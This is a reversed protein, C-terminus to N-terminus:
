STWRVFLDASQRAWVVPGTLLQTIVVVSIFRAKIGIASICVDAVQLIAHLKSESKM